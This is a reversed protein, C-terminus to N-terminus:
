FGYVTEPTVCYDLPIDFDNRDAIKDIPEFYSLGIKLADPRCGALFKDYFGKGYGVRYGQKDFCLLPVLVLDIDAANLITNGSPELIGFRNLIFDDDNDAVVAKMTYNTFNCVPYATTLEPNSFGLYRIINATDIESYEEMAKYTFVVNIFPLSIKQFQILLLDNWKERQVASIDSRKQKYIKRAEKKLM